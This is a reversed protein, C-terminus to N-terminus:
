STIAITLTCRFSDFLGITNTGQNDAFQQGVKLADQVEPIRHQEEAKVRPKILPIDESKKKPKDKKSSGFLFGKQM